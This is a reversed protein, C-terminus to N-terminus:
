GATSSRMDWIRSRQAHKRGDDRSSLATSVFLSGNRVMKSMPRPGDPLGLKMTWSTSTPKCRSINWFAFHPSKSSVLAYKSEFLNQVQAPSSCAGPFQDPRNHGSGSVCILNSSRHSGTTIALQVAASCTAFIFRLHRPRWLARRSWLTPVCRTVSADRVLCASAAPTSLCVVQRCNM